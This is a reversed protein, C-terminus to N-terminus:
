PFRTERSTVVVFAAVAIWETTNDIRVNRAYETVETNRALGGLTVDKTLARHIDQILCNRITRRAAGGGILPLQAGILAACITLYDKFEHTYSAHEEAKHDDELLWYVVTQSKPLKDVNMDEVFMVQSPTFSYNVGDGVIGALRTVIADGIRDWLPLPNVPPV